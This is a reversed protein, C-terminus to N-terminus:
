LCYMLCNCIFWKCIYAKWFFLAWFTKIHCVLILIIIYLYFISIYKKINKEKLFTATKILIITLVCTTTYYQHYYLVSTQYYYLVSTQYYAGWLCDMQAMFVFVRGSSNGGAMFPLSPHFANLSTVSQLLDGNDHFTHLLKGDCGILDIQLNLSFALNKFLTVCSLILNAYLYNALPVVLANM